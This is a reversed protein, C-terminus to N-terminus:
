CVQVDSDSKSTDNLSINSKKLSMETQSWWDFRQNLRWDPIKVANKEVNLYRLLHFGLFTNLEVFIVIQNFKQRYFSRM